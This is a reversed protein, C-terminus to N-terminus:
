TWIVILTSKLVNLSYKLQAKTYESHVRTHKVKLNYEPMIYEVTKLSSDSYIKSYEWGLHARTYESHLRIESHVRASHSYAKFIKTIKM